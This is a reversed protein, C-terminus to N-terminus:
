RRRRNAEEIAERQEAREAGYLERWYMYELASLRKPLEGVTM